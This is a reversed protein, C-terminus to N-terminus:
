NCESLYLGQSYAIDCIVEQDGAMHFEYAQCNDDTLADVLEDKTIGWPNYMSSNFYSLRGEVWERKDLSLYDRQLREIAEESSYGYNETYGTYDRYLADTFYAPGIMSFPLFYFTSVMNSYDGYKIYLEYLQELNEDSNELDGNIIGERMETIGQPHGGVGGQYHEHGIEHAVFGTSLNLSEFFFPDVEMVNNLDRYGSFYVNGESRYVSFVNRGNYHRDVLLDLSDNVSDVFAEKGSEGKWGVLTDEDTKSAMEIVCGKETGNARDLVINWLEIEENTLNTSACGVLLAM